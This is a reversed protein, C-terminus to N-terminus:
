HLTRGPDLPRERAVPRRRACRLVPPAPFRRRTPTVSTRFGCPLYVTDLWEARESLPRLQGEDRRGAPEQLRGREHGGRRCDEGRRVRVLAACSSSGLSCLLLPCSLYHHPLCGSPVIRILTSFGVRAFFSLLLAQSVIPPSLFTRFFFPSRSRSPALSQAGYVGTLKAPTGSSERVLIPVKPCAAKVAAYNKALFERRPAFRSSNAPRRSTRSFLRFLALPPTCARVCRVGASGAGTQCMAVRLEMLAKSAMTKGTLSRRQQSSVRSRLSVARGVNVMSRTNQQTPLEMWGRLFVM